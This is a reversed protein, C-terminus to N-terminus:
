MDQYRVRSGTRNKFTRKHCRPKKGTVVCAACCAVARSSRDRVCARTVRREVFAIRCPSFSTGKGGALVSAPVMRDATITYIECWTVISSLYTRAFSDQNWSKSLNVVRISSLCLEFYVACATIRYEYSRRLPISRKEWKMRQCQFYDLPTSM